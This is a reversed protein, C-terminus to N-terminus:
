QLEDIRTLIAVTRTVPRHRRCELSAARHQTERVRPLVELVSGRCAAGVPHRRCEILGGPSTTAPEQIHLRGSQGGVFGRRQGQPLRGIVETSLNRDGGEGGTHRNLEPHHQVIAIHQPDISPFRMEEAHVIDHHSVFGGGVAGDAIRGNLTREGQRRLEQHRSFVGERDLHM